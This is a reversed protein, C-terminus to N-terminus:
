KNRFGDVHLLRAVFSRRGATDTVGADVVDRWNAVLGECTARVVPDLDGCRALAALHREISSALKVCQAEKDATCYHSMLHLVSSILLTDRTGATTTMAPNM